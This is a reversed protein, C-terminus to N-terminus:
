YQMMQRPDFRLPNIERWQPYRDAPLKYPQCQYIAHSAAQAAASTYPNASATLIGLAAVTGDPNLRLDFEVVQDAPNPSGPIPNWCGRIQSRLADALSATAINALGAPAGPQATPNANNQNHPAATLPNLLNTLDKQNQKESKPKEIEFSPPKIDPAPEADVFHPEPPPTMPEPQPQPLAAAPPPAAPAALSTQSAITVLEVPVAQSELPPLNRQFTFLMAAVALGHLALSALAGLRPGKATTPARARPAKARTQSPISSM